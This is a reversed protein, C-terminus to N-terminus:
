AWGRSAFDRSHVFVGRTGNPGGFVREYLREVTPISAKQRRLIEQVYRCLSRRHEEIRGLTAQRILAPDIDRRSLEAVGSAVAEATPPVLKVFRDDFFLERGGRCCTSVMPLGALMYEVSALMAGECGSLALGVRSSNYVDNIEAFTMWRRNFDAHTVAPEFRHLDHEGDPTVTDGYTVVYLSSVQSALHLRKFPQMQAAYVAEFRKAARTPAFIREDV